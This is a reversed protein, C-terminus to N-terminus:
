FYAEVQTPERENVKDYVPTSPRTTQTTKEENSISTGINYLVNPLTTVTFVLFAGIIWPLMVKKYSAKEEVSGLMYKFGILMITVVSIIFGVINLIGLIVGVKKGFAEEAGIGNPKYDDLNELLDENNTSDEDQIPKEGVGLITDVVNTVWDAYVTNNFICNILVFFIIIFILYRKKLM